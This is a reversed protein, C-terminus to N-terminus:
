RRVKGLFVGNDERLEGVSGAIGHEVAGQPLTKRRLQLLQREQVQKGILADSLRKGKIACGLSARSVCSNARSIQWRVPLVAVMSAEIELKSLWYTTPRFVTLQRLPSTNALSCAVLVLLSCKRFPSPSAAM